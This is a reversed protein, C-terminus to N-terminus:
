KICLIVIAIGLILPLIISNILIQNIKSNPIFILILWFPMIGITTWLYIIEFTFYDQINTLMFPVNYIIIYVNHIM